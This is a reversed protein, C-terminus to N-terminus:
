RQGRGSKSPNIPMERIEGFGPVLEKPDPLGLVRGISPILLPDVVWIPETPPHELIKKAREMSVDPLEGALIMTRLKANGFSVQVTNFLAYRGFYEPDFGAYEATEHTIPHDSVAVDTMTPEIAFTIRLRHGIRRSQVKGKEGLRANPDGVIPLDHDSRKRTRPSGHSVLLVSM